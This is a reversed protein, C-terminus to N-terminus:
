YTKLLLRQRKALSDAAPPMNIMLGKTEPNVTFQIDGSLYKKGNPLPDKTTFSVQFQHNGPLIKFSLSAPIGQKKDFGQSLEATNSGLYGSHSLKIINSDIQVEFAQKLPELKRAVLANIANLVNKFADLSSKKIYTSGSDHIQYNKSGLRLYVSVGGRDYTRVERTKLKDFKNNVFVAYLQDLETPSLKFYTKNKTQYAWHRQYCSDSGIYLHKSVPQMGGQHSVEIITRAPRKHPLASLSIMPDTIDGKQYFYYLGAGMLVVFVLIIIKKM